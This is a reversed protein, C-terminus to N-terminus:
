NNLKHKLFTVHADPNMNGEYSFLEWREKFSLKQGQRLTEYRSHFELELQPESNFVHDKEPMQYIECAAHNPHISTKLVKQSTKIFCTTENFTALFLSNDPTVFLKNSPNKVANKLLYDFYVFGNLTCIPLAGGDTSITKKGKGIYCYGFQRGPVRTMTWIDWKKVHKSKNVLEYEHLVHSGEGITYTKTLQVGSIPSIPSRLVVKTTTKEIIEYKGMVLYPDPPWASKRKLRVQNVDQQSWWDSQPGLWINHGYYPTFHSNENPEVVKNGWQKPDALLVNRGKKYRYVVIRGGAEPWIGLVIENNRLILLREENNTLNSFLNEFGFLSFFFLYIFFLKLNKIM